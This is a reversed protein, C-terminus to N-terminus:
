LGKANAADIFAQIKDEPMKAAPTKVIKGLTFGKAMKIMPNKTVGPTMEEMLAVLEPNELITGLTTEMSIAM